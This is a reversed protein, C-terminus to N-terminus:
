ASRVTMALALNVGSLAQWDIFAEWAPWDYWVLSYSHTCVNQPRPLSRIPAPPGRAASVLLGRPRPGRGIPLPPTQRRRTVLARRGCQRSM